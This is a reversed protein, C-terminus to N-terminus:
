MGTEPVFGVIAPKSVDSFLTKDPQVSLCTNCQLRSSEEMCTLSRLLSDVEMKLDGYFEAGVAVHLGLKSTHCAFVACTAIGPMRVSALVLQVFFPGARVAFSVHMLFVVLKSVQKVSGSAQSLPWVAIFERLTGRTHPSPTVTLAETDTIKRASLLPLDSAGREGLLGFHDSALSQM